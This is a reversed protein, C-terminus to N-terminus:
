GQDREHASRVGKVLFIDLASSSSPINKRFQIKIQGNKCSCNTYYFVNNSMILPEKRLVQKM